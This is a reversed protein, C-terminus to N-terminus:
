VDTLIYAYAKNYDFANSHKLSICLARKQQWAYAENGILQQLIKLLKDTKPAGAEAAPKLDGELLGRYLRSSHILQLTDAVTESLM